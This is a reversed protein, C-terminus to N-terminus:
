QRLVVRLGRRWSEAFGVRVVEIQPNLYRLLTGAAPHFRLAPAVLYITPPAPQLAREPFYGFRPFDGQELHRKIKLWYNVAQLLFVPNEAIKLELIVLRGSRTVSLVDLIGHENGSAAIVQSYAFGEDLMADVRTVDESVLFELWREPQMRFLPQRADSALPNRCTELQRFMEAIQREKGPVLSTRMDRAGFHIGSEHWRLCSLGRFRVVVEGAAVNAHFSCPKTDSPLWRVIDQRARQVLMQTQRLPVLHSSFNAVDAPEIRSLTEMTNDREFLQIKLDTRLAPLMHAISFAGGRPLLMRIGCINKHNASSQLREYWLLAFTLSRAADQSDLGDPVAFLAWVERGRRLLGRVYSGSLSHELDAATTLSELSDDPFQRECFRRIAQTFAEKGLDAENREFQTRLFDLRDPKSRGFCEVALSLRQESHDTIALVRRTLNHHESWLHLLPKESHGRIEWSLSSLSAVRVGNDRLEAPGAASFERLADQLDSSLPM